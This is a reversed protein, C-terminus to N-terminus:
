ADDPEARDTARDARERRREPAPHDRDPAPAVCSRVRDRRVVLRAREPLDHEVADAARLHQRLEEGFGVEDDEGRRQGRLGLPHDVGVREGHDLGAGPEDVDGAAPEDVLTRQNSRELVALETAGDEVREAVLRKGGGRREVVQRVDDDRRVGGPRAGAHEIAADVQEAVVEPPEGLALREEVYHIRVRAVSGPSLGRMCIAMTPRAPDPLVVTKLVSVRPWAPGPPSPPTVSLTPTTFTGSARSSVSAPIKLGLFIM